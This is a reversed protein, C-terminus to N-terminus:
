SLLRDWSESDEPLFWREHQRGDRYHFVSIVDVGVSRGAKVASMRSLAVVHEDNGLVDYEELVFTGDTAKRLRDFWEFLADRGRVEGALPNRGPVHWVVDEDILRDLAETDGARFADATRRYATANPHEDM